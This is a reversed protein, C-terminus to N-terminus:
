YNSVFHRPMIVRPNPCPKGPGDMIPEWILATAGEAGDINLFLLPKPPHITGAETEPETGYHTIHNVRLFWGEEADTVVLRRSTTDQIDPHCMAMDDTVPHLESSEIIQLTIEDHSIINKALLMRGDPQRHFPQIMESKGGGSAGEHLIVFQLEYPTIVLVTSGHLTVWKEQEGINLLVGYIGKKASPGPYLNFSFIEHMDYYRNHVVVQKGQYHTHRFPPAVYIIARPRFVNPIESAPIFGQLDALGAAFFAANMPAILLSHYGLNLAKNGSYFPLVILKQQEALWNLTEERIEDFPMGFREEHTPKDTPLDDAIVM